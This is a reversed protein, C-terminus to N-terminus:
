KVAIILGTASAPTNTVRVCHESTDLLYVNIDATELWITEADVDSADCRTVSLTPFAKKLEAIREATTKEAKLLAQIQEVAETSIAM